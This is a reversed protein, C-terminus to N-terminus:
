LGHVGETRNVWNYQDTWKHGCKTCTSRIELVFQTPEGDQGSTQTYVWKGKRLTDECRPCSYIWTLETPGVHETM